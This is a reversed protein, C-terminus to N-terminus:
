EPQLIRPIVRANDVTLFAMWPINGAEHPVEEGNIIRPIKNAKNNTKSKMKAKNLNRMTMNTFWTQREELVYDTTLFQM